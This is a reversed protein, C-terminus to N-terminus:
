VFKSYFGNKVETPLHQITKIDLITMLEGTKAKYVLALSTSCTKLECVVVKLGELLFADCSLNTVKNSAQSVTKAKYTLNVTMDKVKDAEIFEVPWPSSTKINDFTMKAAVFDEIALGLSKFATRQNSHDLHLRGTISFLIKYVYLLKM